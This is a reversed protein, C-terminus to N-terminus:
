LCFTSRPYPANNKQFPPREHSVDSVRSVHKLGFCSVARPKLVDEGRRAAARQGRDETPEGLVVNTFWFRQLLRWQAGCQLQFLLVHILKLVRYTKKRNRAWNNNDDDLFVAANYPLGTCRTEVGWGRRFRCICNMWVKKKSVGLLAFRKANDQSFRLGALSEPARHSSARQSRYLRITRTTYTPRRFRQM